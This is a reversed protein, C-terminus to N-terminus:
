QGNSSAASRHRYTVADTPTVMPITSDPRGAKRKMGDISALTMEAETVMGCLVGTM